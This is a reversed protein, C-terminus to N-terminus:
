ISFSIKIHRKDSSEKGNCKISPYYVCGYGGESFKEGGNM